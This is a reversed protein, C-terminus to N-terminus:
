RRGECTTGAPTGVGNDAAGDDADEVLHDGPDWDLGLVVDNVWAGDDWTWWVGDHHRVEGPVGTHPPPAAM